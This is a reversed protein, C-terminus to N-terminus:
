DKKATSEDIMGQKKVAPMEVPDQDRAEVFSSRSIKVRCPRLTKRIKKYAPTEISDVEDCNQLERDLIQGQHVLLHKMRELAERSDKSTM